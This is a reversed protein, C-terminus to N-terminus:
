YYDTEQVMPPDATTGAAAVVNAHRASDGLGLETSEEGSYEADDENVEGEGENAEDPVELSGFYWVREGANM